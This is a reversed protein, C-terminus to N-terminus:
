APAPQARREALRYGVGRITEIWDAEPGLKERLRRVHTDVTRTEIETEYNWVNILLHERTQVRGRREMLLRLLKFETATLEIPAGQIRVEHRDIDLLIGGASLQRPAEGGGEGSRRLITQVRLVLEKPSFPKAMYDDAGTELGQIRDAEEAKATLFVVPVRKLRPDARLMRCIQIGNLEPMMVDLIVLDPLFSRAIGVSRNPDTIAEVTYGKAKLHYAVLEIVDSEDDVVLIRKAKNESM